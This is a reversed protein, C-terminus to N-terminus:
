PCPQPQQGQSPQWRDRPKSQWVMVAHDKEYPDLRIAELLDYGKSITGKVREYVQSPPSSVDISRAKVAIIGAGDRSLCARLNALFVQAQDRSAIDQYVVDVRGVVHAYRGPQAADALIPFLNRRRSSLAVLKQFPKPAIEVCFIQGEACIDSLHSATTGSAAGLYLVRSERKFPFITGGKHLYASLKSRRPDWVRYEQGESRFIEEGYVREGPVLNLTAIDRARSYVGQFRLPKPKM